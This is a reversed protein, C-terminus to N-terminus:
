KQGTKNHETLPKIDNRDCTEYLNTRIQVTFETVLM